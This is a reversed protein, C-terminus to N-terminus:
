SNETRSLRSNEINSGFGRGNLQKNKSIMDDLRSNFDFLRKQIYDIGESAKLKKPSSTKSPKDQTPINGIQQLAVAM